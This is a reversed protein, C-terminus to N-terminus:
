KLPKPGKIYAEDTIAVKSLILLIKVDIDIVLEEIEISIFSELNRNNMIFKM